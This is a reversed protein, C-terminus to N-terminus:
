VGPTNIWEAYPDYGCEQVLKRYVMRLALQDNDDASYGTDPDDFPDESGTAFNLSMKIVMGLAGAFPAVAIEREIALPIDHLAENRKEMSALRYKRRLAMETKRYEAEEKAQRDKSAKTAEDLSCAEPYVTMRREEGWASGRTELCRFPERDIIRHPEIAADFRWPFPAKLMEQHLAFQAEDFENRSANAV